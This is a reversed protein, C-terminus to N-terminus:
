TAADSVFGLLLFIFNLSSQSRLQTLGCTDRSSSTARRDMAPRSTSLTVGTAPAKLPTTTPSTSLVSCCGSASLSRTQWTLLPLSVKWTTHPAGLTRGPRFIGKAMIPASSEPSKLILFALSRPTSDLPMSQEAESSCILSSWSPRISSAASAGTPWSM